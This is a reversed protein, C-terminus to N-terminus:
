LRLLKSEQLWEKDPYYCFILSGGKITQMIEHAVRKNLALCGFSRGLRGIRGALKEDVYHAQHMVIRRAYANSNFKGELGHLELSQGYKGNYLSGTQLLGLNSMRSGHRNSFRQAYNDGTAVGHAVHTHHLVRMSNMDIVWMRRKTSALSYDVVTLIDKTGRGDKKANHYSILALRLVESDLGEAKISKIQRSITQKTPNLPLSRTLYGSGLQDAILQSCWIAVILGVLFSSYVFISKNNTNKM